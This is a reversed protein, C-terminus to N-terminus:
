ESPVAHALFSRAQQALHRADDEEIGMVEAIVPYDYEMVDRMVLVRRQDDPLAKMALMLSDRYSDNMDVLRACGM